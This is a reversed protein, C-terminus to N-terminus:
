RCCVVVKSHVNLLIFHFAEKDVVGWIYIFIHSVNEGPQHSEEAQSALAKRLDLGKM